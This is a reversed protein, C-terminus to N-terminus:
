MRRRKRYVSRIGLATMILIIVGLLLLVWSKERIGSYLCIGILGGYVGILIVAAIIRVPLPVKKDTSAELSGEVILDFLFELIFDM